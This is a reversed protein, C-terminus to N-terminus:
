LGGLLSDLEDQKAKDFGSGPQRAEDAEDRTVGGGAYEFGNIRYFEQARKDILNRFNGLRVKTDGLITKRVGEKISAPNPISEELLQLDPGTLVGLNYLSPSKALLQLNRVKSSYDAADDGTFRSGMTEYKQILEDALKKMTEVDPAIQKVKNISDETQRVGAIPKLGPVTTNGLISQEAGEKATTRASTTASATNVRPELLEKERGVAGGIGSAMQLLRNMNEWVGVGQNANKMATANAESLTGAAVMEDITKLNLARNEPTDYREKYGFVGGSSAASPDGIGLALKAADGEFGPRALAGLAGSAVPKDDRITDSFQSLARSGQRGRVTDVFAQAEPSQNYSLGTKMLVDEPQPQNARLEQNKIFAAIERQFKEDEPSVQFGRSPTRQDMAQSYQQGVTGGSLTDLASAGAATASDSRLKSQQAGTVIESDPIDQPKVEPAREGYLMRKAEEIAKLTEEEKRKQDISKAVDTGLLLEAIPNVAM